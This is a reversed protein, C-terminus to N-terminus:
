SQSSDLNIYSFRGPALQALQQAEREQCTLLIIQRTEALELLLKLMHQLRLDDYQVFSDDLFLPLGGGTVLDAMAVRCAFYFQDVTGGSLKDLGVNQGSEPLSVSITMDRAVQLSNYRGGTIRGVMASVMENLEPAVQNKLEEALRAITALALDVAQIDAELRRCDDEAQWCEEELDAPPSLSSYLGELRGAGESSEAQLSLIQEELIETEGSLDLPGRGDHGVATEAQQRLEGENVGELLDDIRLDIAAAEQALLTRRESRAAMARAAEPSDAAMATLLGASKKELDSLERDAEVWRERAAEEQRRYEPLFTKAKLISDLNDRFRALAQEPPLGELGVGALISGLERATTETEQYYDELKDSIFKHERTLQYNRESLSTFARYKEELEALDVAGFRTLLSKLERQAQERARQTNVFELELSYMERRLSRCRTGAKKITRGVAVLGALLPLAFLALFPELWIAAGAVAPLSLLLIGRLIKASNAGREQRVLELELEEQSDHVQCGAARSELAAAQELADPRFYPYRALEATVERMEDGLVQLETKLEEIVQRGKAQMQWASSMEIITEQDYSGYPALKALIDEQGRCLAEAEALAQQGITHVERTKEQREEIEQWERYVEQDIEPGLKDLEQELTRRRHRLEGLRDLKTRASRGQIEAALKKLERRRVLLNELEGEAELLRFEQRAAEGVREKAAALRDRNEALRAQAQKLEFDLQRRHASLAEEGRKVSIGSGGSQALNGLLSRVEEAVASDTPSGLQSISITNRFVLKGCGFHLRAFDPEGLSNLPLELARGSSLDFLALTNQGFDRVVRVRGRAWTYEMEGGYSGGKWPRYKDHGPELEQRPYNPQSFGFLMAEIFGHVTSKGAENGGFVLNLSPSLTFERNQFRGFGNIKLKDVTVM